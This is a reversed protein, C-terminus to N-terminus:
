FIRVTQPVELDLNSFFSTFNLLLVKVTNLTKPQFQEKKNWKKEELKWEWWEKKLEEKTDVM